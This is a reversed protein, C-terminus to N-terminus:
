IPFDKELILDKPYERTVKHKPFNGVPPSIQSVLVEYGKDQKMISFFATIPPEKEHLPIRGFACGFAKLLQQKDGFTLQVRGEITVGKDPTSIM